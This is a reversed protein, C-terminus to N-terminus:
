APRPRASSPLRSAGTARRLTEATTAPEALPTLKRDSRRAAIWLVDSLPVHDRFRNRVTEFGCKDLMRTITRPTFYFLHQPFFYGSWSRGMLRRNWSGYHPVKIFLHGGPRLLDRACRLAESPYPEHEL